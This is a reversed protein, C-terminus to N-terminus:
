SPSLQIPFSAGILGGVLKDWFDEGEESVEVPVYGQIMPYSAAVDVESVIVALEERSLVEKGTLKVVSKTARLFALIVNLSRKGIPLTKMLGNFLVRHMVIVLRFGNTVPMQKQIVIAFVDLFLPVIERDHELVM